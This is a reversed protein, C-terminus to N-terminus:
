SPDLHRRRRAAESAEFERDMQERVEFDRRGAFPGGINRDRYRGGMRLPNTGAYRKEYHATRRADTAEPSDATDTAPAAPAPTLGLRMPNGPAVPIGGTAAFAGAPSPAATPTAAPAIAGGSGARTSTGAWRDTLPNGLHLRENTMNSGSADTQIGLSRTVGQNIAKQRAIGADFKQKQTQAAPAAATVPTGPLRSPRPVLAGNKMGHKAEMAPM